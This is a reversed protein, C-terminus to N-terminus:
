DRTTFICLLFAGFRLHNLACFMSLDYWMQAASVLPKYHPQCTPDKEGGILEYPLIVGDDVIRSQM